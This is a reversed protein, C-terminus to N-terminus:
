CDQGHGSRHCPGDLLRPAGEHRAVPAHLHQEVVEVIKVHEMEDPKAHPEVPGHGHLGAHDPARRAPRSENRLKHLPVQADPPPLQLSLQM